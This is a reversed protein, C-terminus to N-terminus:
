AEGEATKAGEDLLKAVLKDIETDAAKIVIQDGTDAVTCGLKKLTAVDLNMLADKVLEFKVRVATDTLEPFNKSIREVVKDADDFELRGKGKQYGLKIGHLTFTRPKVFLDPSGEVASRLRAQADAATAAAKKIRAIHRRKIAALEDELETVHASLQERAVSYDKALSDITALTITTTSVTSM